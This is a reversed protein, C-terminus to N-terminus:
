GVTEGHRLQTFLQADSTFMGHRQTLAQVLHPQRPSASVPTKRSVVPSHRLRVPISGASRPDGTGDTKFVTFGVLYEYAGAILTGNKWTGIKKSLTKRSVTRM